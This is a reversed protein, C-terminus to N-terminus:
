EISLISIDVMRADAHMNVLSLKSYGKGQWPLAVLVHTSPGLVIETDRGFLTCSRCKLTQLGPWGCFVRFKETLRSESDWTSSALGLFTLQTM